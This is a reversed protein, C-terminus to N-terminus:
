FNRRIKQIVYLKSKKGPNQLIVSVAQSEVGSYQSTLLGYNLTGFERRSLFSLFLINQARLLYHLKRM